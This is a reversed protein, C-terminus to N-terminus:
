LELSLRPNAPEASNLPEALARQAEAGSRDPTLEVRWCGADWEVGAQKLVLGTVLGVGFGALHAGFAMGGDAAGAGM